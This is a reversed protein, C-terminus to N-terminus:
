LRLASLIDARRRMVSRLERRVEGIPTTRGAVAERHGRELDDLSIALMARTRGHANKLEELRPIHVRRQQVAELQILLGEADQAWREYMERLLAITRRDFSKPDAPALSEDLRRLHTIQSLSSEILEEAIRASRESHQNDPFVADFFAPAVM